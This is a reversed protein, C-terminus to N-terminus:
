CHRWRRHRRARIRHHTKAAEPAGEDRVTSGGTEAPSTCRLRRPLPVLAFMSSGVILSCCKAQPGAWRTEFPRAIKKRAAVRIPSKACVFHSATNGLSGDPPRRRAGHLTALPAGYSGPVIAIGTGGEVMQCIVDFSSLRVRVRLRQGAREAQQGVFEQLSSGTGLGVYDHDLTEAFAVKRKAALPHRRPLVVVLRNHAFPFTELQRAPDIAGAVIGIDARDAAVARM